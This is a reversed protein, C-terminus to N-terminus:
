ALFRSLNQAFERPQEVNWCHGVDAWAQYTARPLERSLREADAIPLVTDKLGQAIHVEHRIGSTELAPSPQGVMPLIERWLRPHASFADDVITQKLLDDKLGGFITGLIVAATLEKDRSMALFAEQMEPGFKVGEPHLPSLLYIKNFITPAMQAAYLALLAGTSHGVLDIPGGMRKALEVVDSAFNPFSFEGSFNQTKGCGRWEMFIMQGPGKPLFEAMPRWWSNSALNGHLFIANRPGRGEMVEYHVEASETRLFM